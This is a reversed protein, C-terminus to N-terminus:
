RTCTARAPGRSRATVSRARAAQWSRQPEIARLAAIQKLEGALAIGLVANNRDVLKGRRDPGADLRDLGRGIHQVPRPRRARPIDPRFAQEDAPQRRRALAIEQAEDKKLRRGSRQDGIVLLARAADNGLKAGIDARMEVIRGDATKNIAQARLAFQKRAEPTLVAHKAALTTRAGEIMRRLAVKAVLLDREVDGVPRVQFQHHQDGSATAPDPM